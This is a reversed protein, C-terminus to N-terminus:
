GYGKSESGKEDLEVGSPPSKGVKRKHYNVVHNNIRAIKELASERNLSLTGDTGFRFRYLEKSEVLGLLLDVVEEFRDSHATVGGNIAYWGKRYFINVVSVDYREVTRQTM